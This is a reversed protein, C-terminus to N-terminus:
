RGPPCAWNLTLEGGLHGVALRKAVKLTAASLRSASRDTGDSARRAPMLSRLKARAKRCSVPM